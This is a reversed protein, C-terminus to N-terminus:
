KKQLIANAKKDVLSLLHDLGKQRIIRFFQNKYDNILSRGDIHLDYVIAQNKHMTFLFDLEIEIDKAPVRTQVRAVKKKLFYRDFFIDADHIKIQSISNSKKKATSYHKQHQKNQTDFSTLTLKSHFIKSFDKRFKNKKHSSIQQWYKGLALQAMYEINFIPSLINQAKDKLDKEKQLIEKTSFNNKNEMLKKWQSQLKQSQDITDQIIAKAQKATITKTNGSNQQASINKSYLPIAASLLIIILIQKM